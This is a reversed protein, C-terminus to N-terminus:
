RTNTDKRKRERDKKKMKKSRAYFVLLCGSASQSSLRRKSFEEDSASSGEKLAWTLMKCSSSAETLWLREGNIRIENRNPKSTVKDLFHFEKHLDSLFHRTQLADGIESLCEESGLIVQYDSNWERGKIGMFLWSKVGNKKCSAAIFNFACTDLRSAAKFLCLSVNRYSEIWIHVEASNRYCWSAKFNEREPQMASTRWQARLPPSRANLEGDGTGTEINLFHFFKM